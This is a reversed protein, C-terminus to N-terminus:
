QDRREIVRRSSFREFSSRMDNGLRPREDVIERGPAKFSNFLESEAEFSTLRNVTLTYAGTKNPEFPTAIVFYVTSPPAPPRTSAPLRTTVRADKGSSGGGSNDDFAIPPDGDNGQLILYSDFATSGMTAQVNDNLAGNFWYLDLYTGMSSQLDTTAIAPNAIAQGYAVQTAVNTLFKITYKGLGNPNDDSTTTFAVYKGAAPLVMFLLANNNEIKGNGYGGSQDDAGILTLTDQNNVRDVRYLLVAADFATAPTARLDLAVSTNAATTDFSYADFFYTRGADGRQIQDDSTLEGDFAQGATIPTSRVLPVQGGMKMTVTNSTRGNATVSINVSGFGALEFPIFVNLQDLGAFGPAAGAFFVNCPVGQIKVTVAEAVGNGDTPNAAPTNRIGTAYLVLVNQRQRTGPDVDRETGDPNAVPQYVSGDFTTLAAAAGQGTAKASFVGPAGRVVTFTGTRTSNDSNTVTVAVNAGDATTGPVLFNIQSPAVFFLGADTNGVRVRVGGLTTPLPITTASFAQNNQTVFTGFAAGIADPTMVKGADFSAANVVTVAQQASVKGWHQPGAVAVALLLAAFIMPRATLRIKSFLIM